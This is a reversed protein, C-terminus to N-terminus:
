RDYNSIVKIQKNNPMPEITSVLLSFANAVHYCVTKKIGCIPTMAEADASLKSLCSPALGMSKFARSFHGPLPRAILDLVGDCRGGEWKSLPKEWYGGLLDEDIQLLDFENQQEVSQSSNVGTGVRLFEIRNIATVTTGNALYITRSQVEAERQLEPNYQIIGEMTRFVRALTQELDNALILIENPAEQTFGWALTLAGNLTTKGSKKICSYLITNWPLRGRISPM